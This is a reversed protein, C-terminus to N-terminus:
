NNVRQKMMETKETIKDFHYGNEKGYHIIDRLADRTYTKIDHMLVINVRDKSLNKTVQEYIAPASHLEGADGSALNWDYYFFGRHIVDQTLQTMIGNQYRRSITNSSGGPFRIINTEEGTLRKVRDRVSYLDNYYNEVSSYLYSYDHSATHLGVTHGEEKERTVLDDPGNNTIFFTAKVNEEKLIDLIIDTTGRKPGDDFTLYITGNQGHEVVNVVRKISAENSSSDAVKYLLEYSGCKSTDVNGTIEVKKSLNGDCNDIVEIGPDEFKEHLYVTEYPSGKLELTPVKKDQYKLFRIVERYNGAKDKVSYIIKDRIKKIKVKETLDGDLNDYAEYGEEQYNMSPCVDTEKLGILKITPKSLDRVYVKLVRSKSFFGKKSKYYITYNGIKDSDVKGEVTIQDTIDNNQYIAKYEPPQYKERYNITLSNGIKKNKYILTIRPTYFAFLFPAFALLVMIVTLLIISNKQYKNDKLKVRKKIKPRKRM